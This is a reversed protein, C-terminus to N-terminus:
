PSESNFFWFLTNCIWIWILWFVRSKTTICHPTAIPLSFSHIFLLSSFLLPFLLIHPHPYVFGSCSIYIDIRFESVLISFLYVNSLLDSLWLHGGLKPPSVLLATIFISSSLSSHFFFFHYVSNTSIPLITYSGAQRHPYSGIWLSWRSFPDSDTNAALASFFLFSYVFMNSYQLPSIDWSFKSSLCLTFFPATNYLLNSLWHPTISVHFSLCSLAVLGM